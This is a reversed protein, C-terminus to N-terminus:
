APGHPAKRHRTREYHNPDKGLERQTFGCIGCHEEFPWGPTFEHKGAVENPHAPPRYALVEHIDSHLQHRSM